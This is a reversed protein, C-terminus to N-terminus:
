LEKAVEKKKPHTLHLGIKNIRNIFRLFTAPSIKNGLKHTTYKGGLNLNQAHACLKVEASQALIVNDSVCLYM